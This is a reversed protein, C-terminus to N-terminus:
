LLHAAGGPHATIVEMVGPLQLLRGAVNVAHDGTCIVHVNPGADITYCVGVGENRWSKVAQMIAITAPQWYLLAPQSTIMVAHMLNSDLEVIDALQNFDRKLIAERCLDLRRPSDAIRQPQLISTSAM